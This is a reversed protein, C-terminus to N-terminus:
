SSHKANCVGSLGGKEREVQDVHLAMSYLLSREQGQVRAQIAMDIRDDGSLQGQLLVVDNNALGLAAAVIGREPDAKWIACAMIWHKLRSPPTLIIMRGADSQFGVLAYYRDGHVLLVQLSGWRAPAVRIGHVRAAEPLVTLRDIVGGDVCDVASISSGMGVFLVPSEGDPATALATVDGIYATSRCARWGEGLAPM